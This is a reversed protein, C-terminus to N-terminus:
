LNNPHHLHELLVIPIKLLHDKEELFPTPFKEDLAHVEVEGRLDEISLHLTQAAWHWVDQGADTLEELTQCHRCLLLVEDEIKRINDTNLVTNPLSM